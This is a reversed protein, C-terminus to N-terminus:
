LDDALVLRKSNEESISVRYLSVRRRTALYLVIGGIVDLRTSLVAESTAGFACRRIIHGAVHLKALSAESASTSCQQLHLCLISILCDALRGLEHRRILLVFVGSPKLIHSKERGDFYQVKWSCSIRYTGMIDRLDTPNYSKMRLIALRCPAGISENDQEAEDWSSCTPLSCITCSRMM